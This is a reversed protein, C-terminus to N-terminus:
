RGRVCEPDYAPRPPTGAAADPPTGDVVEIIHAEWWRAKEVAEPPLGAENNM